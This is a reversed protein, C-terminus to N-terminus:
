ATGTATGTRSSPIAIPTSTTATLTSFSVRSAGYASVPPRGDDQCASAPRRDATDRRVRAAEDFLRVAEESREQVEGLKGLAELATVGIPTVSKKM